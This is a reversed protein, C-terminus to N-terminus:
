FQLLQKLISVIGEVYVTCHKGWYLPLLYQQLKCVIQPKFEVM